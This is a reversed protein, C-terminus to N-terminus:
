VRLFISMSWILNLTVELAWPPHALLCLEALQNLDVNRPLFMVLRSAIKKATAFLFYRCWYMYWLLMFIVGVKMNSYGLKLFFFFFEGM